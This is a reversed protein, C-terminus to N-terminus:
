VEICKKPSIIKCKPCGGAKCMANSACVTTNKVKKLDIVYENARNWGKRNNIVGNPILLTSEDGIIDTFDIYYSNTGHHPVKIVDYLTHIKVCNDTNNKIFSWNRKKGFDGTFLVKKANNNDQFVISIENSFASLKCAVSKKEEKKVYLSRFESLLSALRIKLSKLEFIVDSRDYDASAYKVVITNLEVAVSNIQSLLERDIFKNDIENYIKEAKKQVIDKKPWLAIYQNDHFFTGRSIFHIKGYGTCISELFDIITLNHRLTYKSLVDRLLLLTTIYASGGGDWVDPIYVNSFRYNSNQAMYIAGNYHDEHYHTLLFDADHNENMEGIIDSFRNERVSEKMLSKHIGFDVYLDNQNKEKIQFCDGYGCDYMIIKM